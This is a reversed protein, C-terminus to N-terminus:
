NRLNCYAIRATRTCSWKMESFFGSKIAIWKPKRTQNVLLNLYNDAYRFAAEKDYKAINLAQMLVELPVAVQTLKEALIVSEEETAAVATELSEFNIQENVRIKLMASDAM